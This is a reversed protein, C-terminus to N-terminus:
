IAEHCRSVRLAKPAQMSKVSSTARFDECNGETVTEVAGQDTNRAESPRAPNGENRRRQRQGQQIM